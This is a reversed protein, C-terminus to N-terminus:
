NWKLFCLLYNRIFDCRSSESNAQQRIQVTM